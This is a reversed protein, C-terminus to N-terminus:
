EQGLMGVDALPFAQHVHGESEEATGKQQEENSVCLLGRWFFAKGTMWTSM